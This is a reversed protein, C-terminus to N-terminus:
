ERQMGLFDAMLVLQSALMPWGRHVHCGAAAAGALLATTEPQMISEAVIMWPELGGLDLPLPDTERMGLSTTNVVLGHGRPNASGIEVSIGPHAKLLRRQLDEARDRTRNAVTLHAVGAEVLAFAVANGAGGAGVLYARMGKPDLGAERLGAIFGLGDFMDGLLQGDPERRVVNVAGIQAARESVADCLPLAATKHPVTVIMGHFSRLVRLAAFFTALDAASVHFPVLVGDIGREDLIANLGQPAKVQHIPDAVIGYLRTVGTIARM